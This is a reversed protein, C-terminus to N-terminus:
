RRAAHLGRRPLGRGPDDRACRRPDAVGLVAGAEHAPQRRPLGPRRARGLLAVVDRLAQWLGRWDERHRLQRQLHGPLAQAPERRVEADRGPPPPVVGPARQLWPHDPSCQIAFDLAIELGLERAARSWPTSTRRAHRARPPGRRPRGGDGGIAWPSGPDGPRRRAHQQPGQPEHARDPPGAAPLRRRLRARRAGAAGRRRGRLRGVLAPLARVLRRLARARPRRRGRAAESRRPTRAAQRASSPPAAAGGRRRRTARRASCRRARPSSARSTRRGRRSRASSSTAGRRSGTSGRRSRSSGAASRTSRSRARGLPRQRRPELPQERWRRAGPAAPVARAARLIEHGDRFITAAVAVPRRGHAEGPLPRLRGRASTAPDPHPAATAQSTLAPM